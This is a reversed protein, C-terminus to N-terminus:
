SPNERTNVTAIKARQLFLLLQAPSWPDGEDMEPSEFIAWRKVLFAPCKAILHFFTEDEEECFRCSPSVGSILNEHRNLRNHGTIAQIVLGLENRDLKIFFNSYSKKYRPLWIKTQRALELSEWRKDWTKQAEKSICEKAWSIPPKVQSFNSSNTTGSKALYDAVENGTHGKHGRVWKVDVKCEQGLENLANVCDKVTGQRINLTAIANIAAQSDSFITVENPPDELLKDCAKTIAFIEAQFVSNSQSLQGSESALLVNGKTICYGYGANKDLKSGDTYVVVGSHCDPTGKKFSEKNVRFKTNMNVSNTNDLEVTHVGINQLRRNAFKLHGITNNYGLGDWKSRNHHLVRLASQLALTGIKLDLPILGLIVELGATPTGMRFPAM